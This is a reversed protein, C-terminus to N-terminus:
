YASPPSQVLNIPRSGNPEEGGGDRAKGDPPGSRTNRALQMTKRAHRHPKSLANGEVAPRAAPADRNTVPAAPAKAKDGCAALLSVVGMVVLVKRM